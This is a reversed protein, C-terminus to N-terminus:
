YRLLNIISENQKIFQKIVALLGEQVLFGLGEKDLHVLV